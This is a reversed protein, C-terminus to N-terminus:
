FIRNFCVQIALSSTYCQLPKSGVAADCRASKSLNQYTLCYDKSAEEHSEGWIELGSATISVSVSPFGANLSRKSSQESIPKPHTRPWSLVARPLPHSWVPVAAVLAAKATTNTFSSSITPLWTLIEPNGKLTANLPQLTWAIEPLFRFSFNIM